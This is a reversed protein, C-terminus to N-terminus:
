RGSMSEASLRDRVPGLKAEAATLTGMDNIQNTTVNRQNSFRRETGAEERIIM